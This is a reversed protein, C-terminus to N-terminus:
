VIAPSRLLEQTAESLETTLEKTQGRSVDILDEGIVDTFSAADADGYAGIGGSKPCKEPIRGSPLPAAFAQRFGDPARTKKPVLCEWMARGPFLHLLEDRAGFRVPGLVQAVPRDHHQQRDIAEPGPLDSM